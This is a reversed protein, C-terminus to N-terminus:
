RRRRAIASRGGNGLARLRGASLAGLASGLMAAAVTRGLGAPSMGGSDVIFGLMLLAASVVLGVLLGGKKTERDRTLRWAAAATSLLVIAASLYPLSNEQLDMNAAAAAALLLLAAACATGILLAPLVEYRGKKRKM